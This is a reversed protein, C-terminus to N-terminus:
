LVMLTVTGDGFDDSDWVRGGAPPALEVHISQGIAEGRLGTGVALREM